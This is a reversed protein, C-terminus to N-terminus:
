KLIRIVESLLVDLEQTFDVQTASPLVEKSRAQSHINNDAIPRLSKDLNLMSSKFSKTGESYNNAVQSFGEFGFIPPVHDIISRTLMSVTLFHSSASNSNLEECLQILKMLDFKKNNIAKLEEIRLPDVFCTKQNRLINVNEDLYPNKHFNETEDTCSNLFHLENRNSNEWSFENKRAFLEIEDNLLLTSSIKISYIDKFPILKGNMRIPLQKEYPILYENQLTDLNLLIKCEAVEKKSKFYHM